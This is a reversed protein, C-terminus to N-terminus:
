KVLEREGFLGTGIRIFHAGEAIAVEFDGSMGMSLWAMDQLPGNAKRCTKLLAALEQFCPRAAEATTMGSSSNEPAGPNKATGPTVLPGMTMLGVIHLNPLAPLATLVAPLAEPEFGGKAPERSTNVQLFIDRRLGLEGAIRNVAILLDLSDISHLTTVLPLLKRIKNTQLRGIFHLEPGPPVVTVTGSGAPIPLPFKELVETVRNEGFYRAGLKLAEM